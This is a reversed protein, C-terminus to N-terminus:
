GIKLLIWVLNNKRKEIIGEIWTHGRKFDVSSVTDGPSFLVDNIIKERYRGAKIVKNDVPFM